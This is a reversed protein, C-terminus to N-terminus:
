NDNSSTSSSGSASSSGGPNSTAPAPAPTSVPASAPAGAAGKLAAERAKLKALDHVRGKEALDLRAQHEARRADAELRAVNDRVTQLEKETVNAM